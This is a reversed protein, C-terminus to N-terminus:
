FRVSTRGFNSPQEYVHDAVISTGTVPVITPQKMEKLLEDILEQNEDIRAFLDDRVNTPLGRNNAQKRLETNASRLDNIQQRLEKIKKDEEISVIKDTREGM